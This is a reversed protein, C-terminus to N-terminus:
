CACTDRPAAERGSSSTAASSTFRRGSWAATAFLETRENVDVTSGDALRLVAHAGPGTRVLEREGIAAGAELAEGTCATCAATPPCSRPGRGAPLWDARRHQERGAYVVVLVLAAAAALTGWRKLAFVSRQPMAIVRREGRLEALSARCAPCRSLHDEMLVRRSGGLAGSLYARFDQGSSRAAPAPRRETM